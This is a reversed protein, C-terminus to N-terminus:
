KTLILKGQRTIQLVYHQDGHQIFIRRRGGFLSESNLCLHQAPDGPAVQPPIQPKNPENTNM